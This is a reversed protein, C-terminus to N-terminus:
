RATWGRLALAGLVRHERKGGWRQCRSDVKLKGPLSNCVYCTWASAFRCVRDLVEAVLNQLRQTLLRFRGYRMQTEVVVRVTM